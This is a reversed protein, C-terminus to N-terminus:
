VLIEEVRMGRSGKLFITKGTKGLKQFSDKADISTPFFAFTPYSEKSLSFRPGICIVIDNKDSKEKLLKLINSHAQTEADGLELMDGVVIIRKGAETNNFFDALSFEM